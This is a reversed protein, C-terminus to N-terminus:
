TNTNFSATNSAEFADDTSGDTQVNVTTQQVSRGGSVGAPTGASPGSFSAGDVRRSQKGFQRLADTASRVNGDLGGFQSSVAGVSTGIFALAPVLTFVAVALGGVALAAVRAANAFTLTASSAKLAAFTEVFFAKIQAAIKALTKSTAVLALTQASAYILLASVAFGLLEPLFPVIDILIFIVEIFSVVTTFALLFGSSLRILTPIINQISTGIQVLPPIASAALEALGRFFRRSAFADGIGGLIPALAEAFGLLQSAVVPIRDILFSGFARAEDTFARLVDGRAALANFLREIGNVSADVLPSLDRALPTFAESFAEQIEDVEAQLNETSFEGDPGLGAGFIALGGLAALGGAAGVAAVGLAALGAIAAPLAGILAVTLPVLAVFAQNFERIGFELNQLGDRLRTFASNDSSPNRLRQFLGRQDGQGLPDLGGIDTDDDLLPDAPDVGLVDAIREPDGLATGDSAVATAERSSIVDRENLEDTLQAVDLSDAIGIIGGGRRDSLQSETNVVDADPTVDINDFGVTTVAGGTELFRDLGFPGDARVAGDGNPADPTPVNPQLGALLGDGSVNGADSDVDITVDDDVASVAADLTELQGITSELGSEDVDIPFVSEATQAVDLLTAQLNALTDTFDDSVAAELTLNEVVPM